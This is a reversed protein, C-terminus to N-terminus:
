SLFRKSRIHNFTSPNSGRMGAAELPVSGSPHLATGPVNNGEDPLTLKLLLDHVAPLLTCRQPNLTSSLQALHRQAVAIVANMEKQAVSTQNMKIDYVLPIVFSLPEKNAPLSGPPLNTRTLQLFLLMKEKLTLLGPQGLPILPPAAPPMTLCLKPTWKLNTVTEPQLEYRMIAVIDSFLKLTVTRTIPFKPLQSILDM